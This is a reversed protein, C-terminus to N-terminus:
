PVNASLTLLLPVAIWCPCLSYRPRTLLFMPFKVGLARPCMIVLPYAKGSVQITNRIEAVSSHVYRAFSPAWSKFEDEDFVFVAAVARQDWVFVYRM